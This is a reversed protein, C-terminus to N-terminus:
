CVRLCNGLNLELAVKEPFGESVQQELLNLEQKRRRRVTDQTCRQQGKGCMTEHLLM